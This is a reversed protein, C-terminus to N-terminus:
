AVCGPRTMLLRADRSQRDPRRAWREALDDDREDANPGRPAQACPRVEAGARAAAPRMKVLAEDGSDIASAIAATAAAVAVTAPSEAPRNGEDTAPQAGPVEAQEGFIGEADNLM